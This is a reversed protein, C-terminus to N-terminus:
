LCLMVCVSSIMRRWYIIFYHKKIVLFLFSVVQRFFIKFISMLFYYFIRSCRIKELYFFIDYNSKVDLLSVFYKGYRRQIILDNFIKYFYKNFVIKPM